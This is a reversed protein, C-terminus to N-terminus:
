NHAASTGASSANPGPSTGAAGATTTPSGSVVVSGSGGSYYAYSDGGPGSVGPSGPGGPGGNGGAAGGPFSAGDAGGTCGAMTTKCSLAKGGTGSAAAMNPWSTAAALVSGSGGPGGDGGKASVLSGAALHVTANWVYLAVSSGGGAGGLGLPGGPGGCGNTGDTPCQEPGTVCATGNCLVGTVCAGADAPAMTGNDGTRGPFGSNGVGPTFGSSSYLSSQQLGVGAVGPAGTNGDGSLCPPGNANGATGVGGPAGTGGSAVTVEVANLTLSTDNTAGTSAAFIGFLSQGTSATTENHVTLNTLTATVDEAIVASTGSTPAIITGASPDVGAVCEKTWTSGGGYIWGGEITVGNTLTVQEAYTGRDVYIHTKGNATAYSLGAAITKCPTGIAGCGSAAGSTSVFVATPDAQVCAGNCLQYGQDCAVTCTSSVCNDTGFAPPAACLHSCAGCNNNDNSEDVCENTNCLSYNTACTVVCSGSTCQDSGNAVAGCTKNCAGCNNNDTKENVCATGCASFTADCAIGCAGVGAVPACTAAGNAPTPCATGCGNCNKPDTTFSVCADDNCKDFGNNCTFGCTSASCTPSGNAPATCAYSASTSACGGCDAANTTMNVCVDSCLTPTAAPCDDTCTYTSGSAACDPDATDCSHGCSGCNTPTSIPTECGGSTPGTCHEYGATCAGVACDGNTDCTTTATNALSCATCSTAACGYAANTKSVCTDGCLKETSGCAPGTDPLEPNADPTTAADPIPNVTADGVTAGDNADITADDQSGADDRADEPADTTADKPEPGGGGPGQPGVIVTGGDAGVQPVGTGPSGDSDDGGAPAGSTGAEFRSGCAVLAFAALLLSSALLRHRM